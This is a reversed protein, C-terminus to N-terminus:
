AFREDWWEDVQVELDLFVKEGTVAELESRVMSGIRKIVHAGAGIIMKKYRPATTLINAKIYRMGNERKANEEIQVMVTYPVEEHMVLFIKERILESLWFDNTLNTLQGEPYIPAGEPLYDIIVKKLDDINKMDLASVEFIQDFEPAWTMYEHLFPRKMDSKNLVMIKPKKILSVMRHIAKEEDGIHRTPDVVYIVVDIDELSSTAAANLKSTMIDPVKTFIGPTDVFIIQGRPDHVIGQLANRTTQPKPSTIAVKTGVLSNLLTSKGANSRGVLVAFGTKFGTPHSAEQTTNSTTM